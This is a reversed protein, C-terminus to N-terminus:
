MEEIIRALYKMAGMSEELTNGTSGVEIICAAKAVHQNYESNRLIIPKFLGPYLENAKQQVKIAFKLNQLWNTHASNSGDTGIVFMLQSVYEDGIKVRPGYTEDAIADRHLDIVIDTDPNASLINNATVLSRSYSGNYAPYDHYTRDHIVTCGYSNLCSELVDGVKSVSYNLDITRYNGSLEYTYQETPTYSECTHTHYIAVKNKNVEIDPTLMEQTLQYNTGNNIYVGNYEDTYRPNVGSNDVETVTLDKNIGITQLVDGNQAIENSNEANSLNEGNASAEEGGGNQGNNENNSAENSVENSSNKISDLVELESSFAMKMSSAKKTQDVEKNIAIQPLMNDICFLWVKSKNESENSNNESSSNEVSNNDINENETESNKTSNVELNKNNMNIFKVVLAVATLVILVKILYKILDKVEFVKIM